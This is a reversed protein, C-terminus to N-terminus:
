LLPCYRCVIDYLRFLYEDDWVGYEIFFRRDTVFEVNDVIEDVVTDEVPMCGYLSDEAVLNFETIVATVEKKLMELEVRQPRLRCRPRSPVVEEQQDQVLEPHCTSCCREQQVPPFGFYTLLASRLCGEDRCYNKMEDSLNVRNAGIDSNNYYLTATAPDGDRGARGIEQFYSELSSSPTIHIVHQVHRTHIGMGLAQTAVVLRTNSRDKGLEAILKSKVAQDTGAHFIGFLCM